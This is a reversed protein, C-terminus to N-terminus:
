FLVPLYQIFNLTSSAQWYQEGNSQIEITGEIDTRLINTEERELKKLTRLSPHGFKNDKGVEIISLSPKLANLFFESSATDSGHHSVKYIDVKLDKNLGLIINEAEVENDGGLFFKIDGYKLIAAISTNNLNKVEQGLFSKDPYIINLECNNGLIIKQPRDIITLPIKQERIIKLWEMYSPSNSVAGTYLIKKVNYHRLVGVLGGVHDEHSHSLIMLDIQRDYWPLKEGLRQVVRNDPGGDILINQGSPSKILISDGQGVDLFNVSLFVSKDTHRFFLLVSVSLGIIVLPILIIYLKKSM